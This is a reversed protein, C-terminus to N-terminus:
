PKRSLSTCFSEFAARQALVDIKSGTLKVFVSRTELRAQVGLLMHEGAADCLSVLTAQAGFMTIRTAQELDQETWPACKLQGCWRNINALAGGADGGLVTVYCETGAQEGIQFNIVRLDTPPRESWGAPTSYTFENAKAVGPMALGFREASSAFLRIETTQAEIRRAAGIRREIGLEDSGSCAGLCVAMVVVTRRWRRSSKKSPSLVQRARPGDKWFFGLSRRWGMPM